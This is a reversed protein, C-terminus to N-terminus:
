TKFVERAEMESVYVEANTEMLSNNELQLQRYLFYKCYIKGKNKHGISILYIQQSYILTIYIYM